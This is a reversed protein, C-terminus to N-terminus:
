RLCVSLEKWMSSKSDNSQALSPPDIQSIITDEGILSLFKSSEFDEFHFSSQTLISNSQTLSNSLACDTAAAARVDSASIESYRWDM